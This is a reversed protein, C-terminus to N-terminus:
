ALSHRVPFSLTLLTGHGGPSDIRVEGELSQMIEKTIALGLGSGGTKTTVGPQFLSPLLDPPIGPGDDLVEVVIWDEWTNRESPMTEVYSTIVVSGQENVAELANRIVNRLAMRLAEHSVRVIPINESLDLRFHVGSGSEAMFEGCVEQILANVDCPRPKHTAIDMFALLRLITDRAQLIQREMEVLDNDCQADGQAHDHSCQRVRGVLALSASLPNKADHVMARAIKMWEVSRMPAPVQLQRWVLFGGSVLLLRPWPYWEFVFLSHTRDTLQVDQVAEARTAKHVKLWGELFQAAEPPLVDGLSAPTTLGSLKDRVAQSCERIHMGGDLRVWNTTPVLAPLTHSTALSLFFQWSLAGLLVFLAVPPAVLAAYHRWRGPTREFRLLASAERDKYVAVLLPREKGRHVAHLRSIGPGTALLRLREDLVAIGRTTRSDFVIEKTGDRDLDLFYTEVDYGCSLPLAREFHQVFIGRPAAYRYLRATLREDVLVLESEGNDDLDVFGGGLLGFHLPPLLRRLTLSPFELEFVESPLAQAQKIPRKCIIGCRLRGEDKESFLWPQVFTGKAGLVERLLRHGTHDYVMLYALDDKTGNIPARLNEPTGSGLVYEPCGDGDLDAAVPAIPAAGMREHWLLKGDPFRFAYVGRPSGAYQTFVVFVLDKLGDGDLDRADLLEGACDWSGINAMNSYEDTTVAPFCAIRQDEFSRIDVFATDNRRFWVILEERYDGVLDAFFARQYATHGLFNYQESVVGNHDRREVSFTHAESPRGYHYSESFGDHDADCTALLPPLERIPVFRFPLLQPDQWAEKSPWVLYGTVLLFLCALVYSTTLRKKARTYM